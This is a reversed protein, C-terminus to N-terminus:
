GHIDGLIIDNRDPRTWQHFQFSPSHQVSFHRNGAKDQLSKSLVTNTDTDYPTYKQTYESQLSKPLTPVNPYHLM